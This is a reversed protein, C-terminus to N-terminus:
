SAKKPSQLRAFEKIVEYLDVPLMIQDNEFDNIWPQSQKVAAMMPKLFESLALKMLEDQPPQASPKMAALGATGIQLRHNPLPLNMM